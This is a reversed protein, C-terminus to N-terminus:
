GILGNVLWDTWAVMKFVFLTTIGREGMGGKLYDRGGQFGAPIAQAGDGLQRHVFDTGRHSASGVGGSAACCSCLLASRM